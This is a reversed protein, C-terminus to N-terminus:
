RQGEQENQLRQADVSCMTCLGPGGCRAVPPQGAGHVTVGPIPHGHRTWPGGQPEQPQEKNEIGPLM